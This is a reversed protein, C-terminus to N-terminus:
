NSEDPFELAVKLANFLNERMACTNDPETPSWANQMAAKLWLAEAHTLDLQVEIQKVATAKM